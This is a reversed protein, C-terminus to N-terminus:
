ESARPKKSGKKAKAKAKSKAKPATEGEELEPEHDDGEEDGPTNKRKGQNKKMEQSLLKFTHEKALIEVCRRVITTSAWWFPLSCQVRLFGVYFGYKRSLRPKRAADKAKQIQQSM